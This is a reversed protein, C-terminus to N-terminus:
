RRSPPHKPDAAPKIHLMAKISPDLMALDSDPLRKWYENRGLLSIGIYGRLTLTQGDASVTM